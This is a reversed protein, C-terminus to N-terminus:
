GKYFYDRPFFLPYHHEILQISSLLANKKKEKPPPPDASPYTSTSFVQLGMLKNRVKYDHFLHFYDKLLNKHSM